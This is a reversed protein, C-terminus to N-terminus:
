LVVEGLANVKTAGLVRSRDCSSKQDQVALDDEWDILLITGQYCSPTSHYSQCPQNEETVPRSEICRCLFIGHRMFKNIM